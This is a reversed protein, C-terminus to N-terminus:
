SKPSAVWSTKCIWECCDASSMVKDKGRRHHIRGACISVPLSPMGNWSMEAIIRADPPSEDDKGKVAFAGFLHEKLDPPTIQRNLSCMVDAISFIHLTLPHHLGSSRSATFVM